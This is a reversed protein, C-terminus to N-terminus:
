ILDEKLPEGCHTCLINTSHNEVKCSPCTVFKYNLEDRTSKDRSFFAKSLKELKLRNNIYIFIILGIVLAGIVFALILFSIEANFLLIDALFEFAIFAIFVLGFLPFKKKNQKEM